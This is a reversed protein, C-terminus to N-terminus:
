HGKTTLLESVKCDMCLAMLIWTIQALSYMKTHKGTKIHEFAEGRKQLGVAEWQNTKDLYTVAIVPLTMGIMNQEGCGAPQQILTGMSQGSIANEVLASVHERGAHVCLFLSIVNNYFPHFSVVLTFALSIKKHVLAM